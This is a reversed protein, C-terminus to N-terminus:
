IGSNLYRLCKFQENMSVFGNFKNKQKETNEEDGSKM